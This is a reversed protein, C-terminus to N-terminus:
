RFKLIITNLTDHHKQDIESIGNGITGFWVQTAKVTKLNEKDPKPDGLGLQGLNHM